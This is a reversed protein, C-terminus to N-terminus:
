SRLTMIPVRRMSARSVRVPGSPSTLMPRAPLEAAPATSTSSSSGARKSWTFGPAAPSPVPIDWREHVHGALAVALADEAMKLAEARDDGCINAGPVDPFSVVFGGGEDPTLVCPYVYRM